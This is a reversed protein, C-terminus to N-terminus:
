GALMSIKQKFEELSMIKIDREWLRLVKFGKEILESTRVYDIDLGIPYNHWYDGDCEIVLNLSPVLIDCQYRHEINNMFQHTFFSLGLEKLYDQIKIEISTDNIPTVSFQRARHMNEVAKLRREESALYVNKASEDFSRVHIGYKILRNKVTSYWCGFMLAIERVSKKKDVYLDELVEKTLIGDYGYKKKNYLVGNKLFNDKNKEFRERMRFTLEKKGRAPIKQKKLASTVSASCCGKIKAIDNTSYQLDLYLYKLDSWDVKPLFRGTKKDINM